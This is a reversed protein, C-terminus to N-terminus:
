KWFAETEHKGVRKEIPPLQMYDGYTMRLYYDSDKIGKFFRDEFPYDVLDEFIVKRIPQKIIGNVSPYVMKHGQGNYIQANENIEYIISKFSKYSYFFKLLLLIFNKFFSRNSVIRIKKLNALKLLFHQHKWFVKWEEIDDPADDMPFLDIDVGAQIVNAKNHIIVTRDDYIKAYAKHWKATREISAIKYKEKYVNPFISIFKDYDDRLMCIDIDDDWPIFGKHRIAGM